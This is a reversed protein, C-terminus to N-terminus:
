KFRSVESVVVLFMMFYNMFGVLSLLELSYKLYATFSEFM